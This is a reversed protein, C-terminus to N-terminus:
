LLSMLVAMIVGNAESTQYGYAFALPRIDKVKDNNKDEYYNLLRCAELLHKEYDPLSPNDLFSESFRQQDVIMAYLYNKVLSSYTMENIIIKKSTSSLYELDDFTPTSYGEMTLQYFEMNKFAELEVLGILNEIDKFDIDKCSHSIETILDALSKQTKNIVIPKSIIDDEILNDSSCGVFVLSLIAAYLYYKKM